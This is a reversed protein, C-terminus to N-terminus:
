PAFIELSQIPLFDFSRVPHYGAAAMEERMAEIPTAHGPPNVLVAFGSDLPEVAAVRGRPTLDERLRAFYDPREDLHHYANCLFVLDIEGDPLLPDDTRAEVTIVNDLGRQEAARDIEALAEPDIDVAYVRGEAGVAEALRFTFYGDGSGLDAVTDGPELALADIVREPLQWSARRPLRLPDIQRLDKWFAVGGAVVTFLALAVFALLLRRTRTM